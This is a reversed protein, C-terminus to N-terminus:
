CMWRYRRRHLKNRPTSDKKHAGTRVQAGKSSGADRRRSSIIAHLAARKQDNSLKRADVPEFVPKDDLQCFEAFLAEVARDGHKKISATATMQTMIHGFVHRRLVEPDEAVIDEMTAASHQLMSYNGSDGEAGFRHSYDRGRNERLYYQHTPEPQAGQEQAGLDQAGEDEQNVDM